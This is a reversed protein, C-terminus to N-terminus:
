QSNSFGHCGIARDLTIWDALQNSTQQMSLFISSAVRLRTPAPRNSSAPLVGACAAAAIPTARWVEYVQSPEILAADVSQTGHRRSARGLQIRLLEFAQAARQQLPGGFM